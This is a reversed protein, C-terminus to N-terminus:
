SEDGEKVFVFKLDKIVKAVQEDTKFQNSQAQLSEFVVVFELVDMELTVKKLTSALEAAGDVCDNWKVNRAM